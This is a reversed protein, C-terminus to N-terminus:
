PIHELIYTNHYISPLVFMVAAFVQLTLGILILLLILLRLRDWSLLFSSDILFSSHIIYFRSM